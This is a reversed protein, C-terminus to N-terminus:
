AVPLYGNTYPTSNDFKLTIPRGTALHLPLTMLFAVFPQAVLLLVVQVCRNLKAAIKAYNDARMQNLAKALREEEEQLARLRKEEARQLRAEEEPTLEDWSM